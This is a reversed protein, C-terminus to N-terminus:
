KGNRRVPDKTWLVPRACSSRPVLEECWAAARHRQERSQSRAAVRMTSVHCGCRMILGLPKQSATTGGRVRDQSSAFATHMLPCKACSGLEQAVTVNRDCLYWVLVEPTPPIKHCRIGGGLKSGSPRMRPPSRFVFAISTRRAAVLPPKSPRTHHCFAACALGVEESSPRRFVDPLHQLSPGNGYRVREGSILWGARLRIM